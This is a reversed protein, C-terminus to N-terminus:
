YKTNDKYIIIVSNCIKCLNEFDEPLDIKHYDRLFKCPNNELDVVKEMVKIVLNLELDTPTRLSYFSSYKYFKTKRLLWMTFVAVIVTVVIYAVGVFMQPILSEDAIPILSVIIFIITVSFPNMSKQVCSCDETYKSAKKLEQLTPVRKLEKYANSMMHTAAHTGKLAKLDPNVYSELIRIVYKSIEFNYAIDILIWSIVASFVCSKLYGHIVVALLLLITYILISFTLRQKSKNTEKDFISFCGCKSFSLECIETEVSGDKKLTGKIGFDQFNPIQFTVTNTSFKSLYKM